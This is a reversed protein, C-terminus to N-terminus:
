CHSNQQSTEFFDEERRFHWAQKWARGKLEREIRAQPKVGTSEGSQLVGQDTNCSPIFFGASGSATPKPLHVERLCRTISPCHKDGLERGWRTGLAGIDLRDKRASGSCNSVALLLSREVAGKAAREGRRSSAEPQRSRFIGVGGRTLEM